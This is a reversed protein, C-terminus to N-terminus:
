SQYPTRRPPTQVVWAAEKGDAVPRRGDVSNSAYADGYNLWLTGDDRLVRRVERFVEVLREIHEELTPELGIM